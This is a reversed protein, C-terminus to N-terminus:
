PTRGDPLRTPSCSLAAKPSSGTLFPWCGSLHAHSCIWGRVPRGILGCGQGLHPAAAYSGSALFGASGGGWAGINAAAGKEPVEECLLLQHPAAHPVLGVGM